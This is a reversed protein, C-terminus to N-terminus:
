GAVRKKYLGLMQIGPRQSNPKDEPRSGHRGVRTQSPEDRVRRSGERLKAQPVFPEPCAEPYVGSLVQYGLWLPNYPRGAPDGKESRIM